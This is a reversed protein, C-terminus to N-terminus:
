SEYSILLLVSFFTNWFGICIQYSIQLEEGLWFNFGLFFYVQFKLILILLVFTGIM